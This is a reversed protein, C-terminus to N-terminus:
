TLLVLRNREFHECCELYKVKGPRYAVENDIDKLVGQRFTNKWETKSESCHKRRSYEGWIHESLSNVYTAVNIPLPLHLDNEPQVEIHPDELGHTSFKKRYFPHVFQRWQSNDVLKWLSQVLLQHVDEQLLFWSGTMIYSRATDSSEKTLRKRFMYEPFVGRQIGWTRKNMVSSLVSKMFPVVPSSEGSLGFANCLFQCRRTFQTWTRFHINYNRIEERDSVIVTLFLEFVSWLFTVHNGGFTHGVSDGRCFALVELWAEFKRRQSQSPKDPFSFISNRGYKSITDIISIMIVMSTLIVRPLSSMRHIRQLRLIISYNKEQFCSHLLRYLLGQDEEAIRGMHTHDTNLIKYYKLDEISRYVDGTFSLKLFRKDNLLQILFDLRHRLASYLLLPKWDYLPNEHRPLEDFFSKSMVRYIRGNTMVSSREKMELQSCYGLQLFGSKHPKYVLGFDILISISSFYYMNTSNVGGLSSTSFIIQPDHTYWLYGKEKKGHITATRIVYAYYKSFHTALRECMEASQVYVLVRNKEIAEDRRLRLIYHIYERMEKEQIYMNPTFEWEINGLVDATCDSYQVVRPGCEITYPSLETKFYRYLNRKTTTFTELIELHNDDLVSSLIIIKACRVRKKAFACLLVEREPITCQFDDIVLVDTEIPRSGCIVFEKCFHQLSYLNKRPQPISKTVTTYVYQIDAQRRQLYSQLVFTKGTRTPGFVCLVEETASALFLDLSQEYTTM